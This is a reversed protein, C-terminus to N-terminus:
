FVRGFEGYYQNSAYLYALHADEKKDFLGLTKEKNNLFIRARWKKNKTHWSVGKYGSTNDKRKSKNRSNEKKTASRLNNWKNNSRNLDRHDIEDEPWYGEMYLYALRHARECKGNIIIVIYGDRISGAENGFFRTNWIKGARENAFSSLERKKWTFIGTNPNYHLLSKLYDQNM